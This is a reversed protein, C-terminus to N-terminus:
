IRLTDLTLRILERIEDTGSIRTDQPVINPSLSLKKCLELLAHTTAYYFLHPNELPRVTGASLAQEYARIFDSHYRDISNAYDLSSSQHEHILYADFEDVFRFWDPHTDLITAYMEYFAKIFGAGTQSQVYSYYDSEIRALLKEAAALILNTKQGFYRYITAEGIDARDAVDKITVKHIPMELFLTLATAAIYDYKISKISM